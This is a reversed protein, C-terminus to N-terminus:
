GEIKLRLGSWDQDISVIAVGIMGLTKAYANITDRNIDAALKSTGKPYTVWLIGGKKLAGKIAPLHKVLDVRSTIFVQIIDVKTSTEQNFIPNEPLSGLLDTYGPFPNVLLMSRGAKMMLKEPLSKSPM